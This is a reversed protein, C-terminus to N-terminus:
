MSCLVYLQKHHCNLYSKRIIYFVDFYAIEESRGSYYYIDAMTLEYLDTMLTKNKM